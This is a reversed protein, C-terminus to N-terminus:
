KLEKISQPLEPLLDSATMGADGMGHRVREGARGHLYVGLAAADFLPLGQGLLGAIVGALVDGTGASALGANAFPSVRCRGDPAATVTFPGKLVVTKKWRAATEATLSIRKENIEDVPVGSLRSMEGPHPTIIFDSGTDFWEEPDTSAINLADADLVLPAGSGTKLLGRVLGAAADGQGLGPGALVANYGDTDITADPSLIGPAAEPLPMYTAEALKSAVVPALSAPTALTVLGAGARYAAACALYSAGIYNASGAIILVKGFSGKHSYQSRAPLLGRALEPTMLETNIRDSLRPPIGIDLIVVRGARAAGQPIYLGRKPLGLTLTYDALTSDPDARGSDSNVGSPMDAAFVAIEPRSSKAQNLRKLAERYTGEPPRSGGTGFFADLVASASYLTSELADARDTFGIGRDLALRYNLDDESRRAPMFVTVKAGWDSLYRAAVIGDGGNNGPGALVVVRKGSVGSSLERMSQAIARGANEMLEEIGIGLDATKQELERMEAATAIKM